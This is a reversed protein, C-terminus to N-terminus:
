FVRGQMRVVPGQLIRFVAVSTMFAPFIRDLPIHININSVDSPDLKMMVCTASAYLRTQGDVNDYPLM